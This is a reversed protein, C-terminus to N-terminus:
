LNGQDQNNGNIAELLYKGINVNRTILPITIIHFSWLWLVCYSPKFRLENTAITAPIPLSRHVFIPVRKEINLGITVPVLYPCMSKGIIKIFGRQLWTIGNVM